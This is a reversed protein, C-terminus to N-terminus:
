IEFEIGDDSMKFDTIIGGTKWSECFKVLYETTFRKKRKRFADKAKESEDKPKDLGCRKFITTFLMKKSDRSGNKMKMIEQLMYLKAITIPEDSRVGTDLLRLDVNTIQNLAKSYEYLIPEKTAVYEWANVSKGNQLNIVRAGRLHLINDNYIIHTSDPLETIREEKAKYKTKYKGHNAFQETADILVSTFRLREVATVIRDIENEHAATEIAKKGKLVSAIQEPWFLRNGASYLSVIANLVALDFDTIKGPITIGNEKATETDIGLSVYVEAGSGVSFSKQTKSEVTSLNTVANALSMTFKEPYVTTPATEELFANGARKSSWELFQDIEEDTFTEEIWEATGASFRDLAAQYDAENFDSDISILGDEQLRRLLQMFITDDFKRLESGAGIVPAKRKAM